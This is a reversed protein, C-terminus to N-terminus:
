IWFITASERAGVRDLKVPLRQQDALADIRGAFLAELLCELLMIDVIDQLLADTLLFAAHM